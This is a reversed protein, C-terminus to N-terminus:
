SFARHAQEDGVYGDEWYECNECHKEKVEHKRKNCYQYCKEYDAEPDDQYIVHEHHLCTWMCKYGM